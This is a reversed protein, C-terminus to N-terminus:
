GGEAMRRWAAALRGTLVGSVVRTTHVLSHPRRQTLWTHVRASEGILWKNKLEVRNMFPENKEHAVTVKGLAEGVSGGERVAKLQGEQSDSSRARMM